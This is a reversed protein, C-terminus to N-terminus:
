FNVRVGVKVLADTKGDGVKDESPDGLEWNKEVGGFVSVTKNIERVALVEASGTAITDENAVAGLSLNLERHWPSVPAIQAVVPAPKVPAVRTAPIPAPAAVVATGYVSSPPTLQGAFAPVNFLLATITLTLFTLFKKM